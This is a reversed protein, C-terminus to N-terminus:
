DALQQIEAKPYYHKLIERFTKGANAMGMAGTQCMGVAHGSGAGDIMFHTPRQLTGSTDITIAGSRLAPEFLRRLEIESDVTFTGKEGVFTAANYRGSQGRQGPKIALVRGINKKEAVFKTVEEATFERHWRYNRGAWELVKFQEPNCYAIPKDKLYKRFDADKTLDYSLQQPGDFRATGTYANETSRVPWIHRIEETHGGCLAAYYAPIAKGGFTLILGRTASVAQDTASNTRTLGSYAQCHVTSCIDYNHKKHGRGRLMLVSFSRAAVAQAYQAQAPADAGIESPVVGRLYEELPVTEIAELSHSSRSQLTIQGQYTRLRGATEGLAIRDDANDSKLMITQSNNLPFAGAPTAGTAAIHLEGNRLTVTTPM